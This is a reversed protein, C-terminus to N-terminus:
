VPSTYTESGVILLFGLRLSRFYDESYMGCPCSPMPIMNPLFLRTKAERFSPDQLKLCPVELHIAPKQYGVYFSVRYEQLGKAKSKKHRFPPLERNFAEGCNMMM